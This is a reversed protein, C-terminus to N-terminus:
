VEEGCDELSKHLYQKMLNINYKSDNFGLEPIASYWNEFQTKIENILKAKFSIKLITQVSQQIRKKPNSDCICFPKNDYEQVNSFVSVSVPM